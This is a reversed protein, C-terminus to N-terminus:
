PSYESVVQTVINLYSMLRTQKTEDAKNAFRSGLIDVHWTSGDGYQRPRALDGTDRALSQCRSIVGAM